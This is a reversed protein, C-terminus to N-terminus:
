NCDDVSQWALHFAGPRLRQCVMGNVDEKFYLTSSVQLTMHAGGSGPSAPVTELWFTANKGNTRHKAQVIFRHTEPVATDALGNLMATSAAVHLMMFPATVVWLLANSKAPRSVAFMLYTLVAGGIVGAIIVPRFEHPWQPLGNSPSSLLLALGFGPATVMGLLMAKKKAEVRDLEYFTILGGSLAVVLLAVGPLAIPFGIALWVPHPYLMPWLFAGMGVFSSVATIRRLQALKRRRDEVTPGYRDDKDVQDAAIKDDDVQLNRLSNVWNNFTEDYKYTAPVQFGRESKADTHFTLGNKSRRYGIILRREIRRTGLISVLALTDKDLIVKSVLAQGVLFIGMLAMLIFIVLLVAFSSIPGRLTFPMLVGLATLPLGLLLMVIRGPISPRYVLPFAAFPM